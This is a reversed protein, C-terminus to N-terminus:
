SRSAAPRGRPSSSRRAPSRAGRCTRRRRRRAGRTARSRRPRAAPDRRRGRGRPRAPRLAAFRRLAARPDARGSAHAGRARVRRPGSRPRGVLREDFGAVEEEVSAPEVIVTLAGAAHDLWGSPMPSVAPAFVIREAESPPRGIRETMLAGRRTRSRPRRSPRCGSRRSSRARASRTRTSSGCRRSRTATSSSACPWTGTRRSSTSSAAACPSTAPRSRRSRRPPLRPADAARRAGPLSIESGARSTCSCSRSAARSGAAARLALAGAARRAWDRAGGRLATLLTFEDRRAKLSAPIRQYPTLTPAPAHFVRAMGSAALDGVLREAEKENAVVIALPRELDRALAALLIAPLAGVGGSM